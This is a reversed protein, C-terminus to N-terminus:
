IRGGKLRTGAGLGCIHIHALMSMAHAYMWTSTHTCWARCTRVLCYGGRHWYPALQCAVDPSTSAHYVADQGSKVQM